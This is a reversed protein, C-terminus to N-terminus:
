PLRMATGRLDWGGPTLVGPAVEITHWWDLRAVRVRVDDADDVVGGDEFQCGGGSFPQGARLRRRPAPALISWPRGPVSRCVAAASRAEAPRRGLSADTIRTPRTASRDSRRLLECRAPSSRRVFRGTTVIANIM